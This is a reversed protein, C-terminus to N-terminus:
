VYRKNGGSKISYSPHTRFGFLLVPSSHLKLIFFLDLFCTKSYLIFKSFLPSLTKVPSISSQPLFFDLATNRLRKQHHGVKEMTGEQPQGKRRTGQRCGLKSYGESGCSARHHGGTSFSFYFIKVSEEFNQFSYILM